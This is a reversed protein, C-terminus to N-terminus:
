LHGPEVGHHDDRKPLRGEVRPLSSPLVLPWRNSPHQGIQTSGGLPWRQRTSSQPGVAVMVLNTIRGGSVRRCRQPPHMATHSMQPKGAKKEQDMSGGQCPEHLDQCFAKVQISCGIRLSMCNVLVMKFWTPTTTPFNHYGTTSTTTWWIRRSPCASATPRGPHPSVLKACQYIPPM